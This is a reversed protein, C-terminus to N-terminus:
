SSGEGMSLSRSIPLKEWAVIWSTSSATAAALSKWSVQSRMPQCSRIRITRATASTM